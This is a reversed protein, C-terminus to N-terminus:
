ALLAIWLVVPLVGALVLWKGRGGLGHRGKLVMLGSIALFILSLAYGDAVWVWSKRGDNLHLQNLAHLVPRSRTGEVLAKGTPLDISVTWGELFLKLTEPDELFANRYAAPHALRHRAEAVLRAEPWAGDLPGLERVERITSRNPNWHAKHNVALGSVGYVLTLAVAVYGIDRHLERLRQRWSPKRLPRAASATSKAEQIDM